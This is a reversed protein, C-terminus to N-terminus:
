STEKPVQDWNDLKIYCAALNSYLSVKLSKVEAEDDPSLDFFKGAHTLAKHYRIMMMMM